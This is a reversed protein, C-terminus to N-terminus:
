GKILFLTDFLGGSGGQARMIRSAIWVTRTRKEKDRTKPVSLLVVGSPYFFLYNQTRNVSESSSSCAFSFSLPLPLSPALCIGVRNQNNEEQCKDIRQWPLTSAKRTTSILSPNQNNVSSSSLCAIFVSSTPVVPCVLSTEVQFYQNLNLIKLSLSM